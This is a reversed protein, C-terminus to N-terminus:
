GSCIRQPLARSAHLRYLLFWFESTGESEEEKSVLVLVHGRIMARACPVAVYEMNELPTEHM